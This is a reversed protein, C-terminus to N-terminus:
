GYKLKMVLVTISFVLGVANAIIISLSSILVGYFVWSAIGTTLVVYMGLSIDKTKKTKLIKLVQPFFSSTTMVGAFFGVAETFVGAM